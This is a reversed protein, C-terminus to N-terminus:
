SHAAGFEDATREFLAFLEPDQYVLVHSILGRSDTSFLQVTHPTPGVETVLYLLLAPQHNASRARTTWNTGRRRFLSDMFRRYPARGRSWAPVPPMELVVDRTVLRELAAADASELALAYQEM